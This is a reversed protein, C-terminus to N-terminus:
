EIILNGSNICSGSDIDEQLCKIERCEIYGSKCVQTCNENVCKNYDNANLIFKKYYTLNNPPCDDPNSCDRYFCMEVTPNCETEVIFDYDKKILYLYFSLIISFVVLFLLIRIFWSSHKKDEHM